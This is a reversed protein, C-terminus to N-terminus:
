QGIKELVAQYAAMLQNDDQWTITELDKVAESDYELVIDPTIGEGHICIGNPTYYRAITLKIASGDSLQRITQVIGKGFTQTGVLTAREYDKVAGAFIESASASEGNVLVAMPVDNWKEDSTYTQRNGYKDETYVITGKPLLLDLIDNVSTLLGGPNSRLDVVLGEMGQDMLDNLTQEFQKATVGDFETIIIYGINNDLMQGAVTDIDIQHRTITFSLTEKTSPRYIKIDVTTGEEGKMLAAASSIDLDATDTGAIEMILDGEEVGQELAGSGEFMGVVLVYGTDEDKRVTAGIGCYSGSTSEMMATYEEATFYASYPDGLGDLLGKYVSDAVASYDEDFLYYQDIYGQLEELKEDIDELSQESDQSVNYQQQLLSEALRKKFNNMALLCILMTLLIGLLLGLGFKLASPWFSKRDTTERMDEREDMYDDDM